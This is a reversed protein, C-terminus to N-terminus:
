LSLIKKITDFDTIKLKSYNIKKKNNKEIFAILKILLFSDISGIDINNKKDFKIKNTKLFSKIVNENFKEKM